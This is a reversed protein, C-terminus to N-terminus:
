RDPRVQRWGSSLRLSERDASALRGRRLNRFYRRNKRQRNTSAVTKHHSPENRRHYRKTVALRFIRISRVLAPINRGAVQVPFLRHHQRDGACELQSEFGPMQGGLKAGGERITRRLLDLDHHWAHASGNLPPPPYNGNADTQKWNPTAEANQGHCSACNLRFLQEGETVQDDSYWREQEAAIVQGTILMFTAIFIKISKM